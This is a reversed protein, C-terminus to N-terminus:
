LTRQPQELTGIGCHRTAGLRDSREREVAPEEQLSWSNRHTVDSGNWFEVFSM